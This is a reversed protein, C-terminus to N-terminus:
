NRGCKAVEMKGEKNATIRKGSFFRRRKRIDKSATPHLSSKGRMNQNGPSLQPMRNSISKTSSQQDAM